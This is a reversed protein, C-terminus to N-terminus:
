LMRNIHIALPMQLAKENSRLGPSGGFFRFPVAKQLKKFGLGTNRRFYNVAPSSKYVM